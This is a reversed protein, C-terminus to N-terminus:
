LDRSPGDRRTSINSTSVVLTSSLKLTLLERSFESITRRSRIGSNECRPRLRWEKTSRRGWSSMWWRRWTERDWIIAKCRPSLRILWRWWRIPPRSTMKWRKSSSWQILSLIESGLSSRPWTRRSRRGMSSTRPWTTSRSRSISTWSESILSGERSRWRRSLLMSTMVTAMCTGSQDELWTKSLTLTSVRM